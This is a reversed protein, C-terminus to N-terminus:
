MTNTDFLLNLANTLIDMLMVDLLIEVIDMLSKGGDVNITAIVTTVERKGSSRSHLFKTGYKDLVQNTILSLEM